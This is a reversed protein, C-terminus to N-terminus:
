TFDRALKMALAEVTIGGKKVELHMSVWHTSKGLIKAVDTQTLIKKGKVAVTLAELIPRYMEPERM